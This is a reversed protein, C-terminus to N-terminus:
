VGKRILEEDALRQSLTLARRPLKDVADALETLLACLREITQRDNQEGARRWEMTDFRIYIEVDSYRSLTQRANPTLLDSLHEPVNCVLFFRREFEADGLAYPATESRTQVEELLSKHRLGLILGAPNKIPVAARTHYYPADDEHSTATEMFFPYAGFKGSIYAPSFRSRAKFEGGIARAFADWTRIAGRRMWYVLALASVILVLGALAFAWLPPPPNPNPTQARTEEGTAARYVSGGTTISPAAGEGTEGKGTPAPASAAGKPQSVTSSANSKPSMPDPM